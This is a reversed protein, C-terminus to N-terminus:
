LTVIQFFLGYWVNFPMICLSKTWSLVSFFVVMMVWIKFSRGWEPLNQVSELVLYFLSFSQYFNEGSAWFKCSRNEISEVWFCRKLAAQSGLDHCMWALEQNPPWLLLLPARSETKGADKGDDCLSQEQTDAWCSEERGFVLCLICFM